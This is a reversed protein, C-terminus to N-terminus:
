GNRIPEKVFQYLIYGAILGFAGIIAGTVSWDYLILLYGSIGLSLANGISGFATTLSMMSGRLDPVQELNLGLVAASRLGALACVMFSSAVALIYSSVTFRLVTFVGLLVHLYMSSNKLGIRSVAKRSLLAGGMYLLANMITIWIVIDRPILFHQRFNSTSLSLTLQWAGLGLGYSFLCAVASKNNLIAKYGVMIDTRVPTTQHKPVGTITLLIALLIIPLVFLLFSMRWDGIFNVLPYGIVYLLAPGAMLWGLSKTRDERPVHEGLLSTTMPIITNGAIGGLSYMVLLTIFSPAYFCGVVSVISLLLGTLLLTRQKYKVSLFGLTLAALVAAISNFTRIQNTLGLSTGYTQGIEILLLTTLLSRAQPVIRSTTLAPLLLRGYTRKEM